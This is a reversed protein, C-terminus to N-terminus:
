CTAKWVGRDYEQHTYVGVVFVKSWEYDNRVILRYKNGGINFVTCRGLLDASNACTSRVDRFDEWRVKRALDHWALLPQEADSYIEWFAKLRKKSIVHM